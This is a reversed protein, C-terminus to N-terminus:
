SRARLWRNFAEAQTAAFQELGAVIPKEVRGGVLPVHVKLEGTVIREAGRDTARIVSRYSATLRDAYHDPEIEHTASLEALDWNSFEIWSLKDPDVVSTVASPLNGVFKFRVRQVITNDEIDTDAVAPTGIPGEADLTSLFTPDTLGSITGLPPEDFRQRIEFDM